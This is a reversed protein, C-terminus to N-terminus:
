RRPEMGQNLLSIMNRLIALQNERVPIAGGLWSIISSTYLSFLHVAATMTNVSRDVEGTRQAQSVLDGLASLLEMTLSNLEIRNPDAAFGMEKVFVRSLNLDKEYYDFFRGFVFMVRDVWTGEPLSAFAKDKVGRVASSFLHFLLDRKEPFYVFLTGTGIGAEEAIARTTTAEYGNKSFLKRAAREIRALKDQKNRDRLSLKKKRPSM